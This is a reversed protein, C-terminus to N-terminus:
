LIHERHSPKGENGAATFNKVEDNEQSHASVVKEWHDINVDIWGLWGGVFPTTASTMM